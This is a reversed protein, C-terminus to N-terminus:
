QEENKTTLWIEHSFGDIWASANELPANVFLFLAFFPMSLLWFESIFTHYCTIAAIPKVQCNGGLLIIVRIFIITCLKESM